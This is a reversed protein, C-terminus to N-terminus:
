RRLRADRPVRYGDMVVVSWSIMTYAGVSIERDCLFWVSTIMACEGLTVRGRPGVDFMTGDNVQAGRGLTVAGPREGRCLDFSFVTHVYAAPDIDVNGPMLAPEWAGPLQ